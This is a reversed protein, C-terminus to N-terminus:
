HLRRDPNQEGPQSHATLDANEMQVQDRTPHMYSNVLEELGDCAQRELGDANDERISALGGAIIREIDIQTGRRQDRESIRLSDAEQANGNGNVESVQRGQELRDRELRERELRDEELRDQGLKEQEM